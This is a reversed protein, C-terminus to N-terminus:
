IAARESVTGTEIELLRDSWKAAWERLDAV